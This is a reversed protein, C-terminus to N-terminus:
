IYIYIYINCMCVILYQQIYVYMYIYMYIYLSLSLDAPGRSTIGHSLIDPLFLFGFRVPRVPGFRVSGFWKIGSAAPVPRPVSGFRIPGLWSADSFPLGFRTSGPFVNKRVSGFRVSGFRVSGFRHIKSFSDPVSGTGERGSTAASDRVENDDLSDM